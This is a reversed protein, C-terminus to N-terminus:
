SDYVTIGATSVKAFNGSNEGFDTGECSFSSVLKELSAEEDKQFNLEKSFGTRIKVVTEPEGTEDSTKKYKLVPFIKTSKNTKSTVMLIRAFKQKKDVEEEAVVQAM